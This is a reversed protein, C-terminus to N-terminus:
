SNVEVEALCLIDPGQGGNMKALVTALNKLKAALAEPERAFYGDYTSDGRKTRGDDQDDFLNEVNWFCFFYEGAKGDAPDPLPTPEPLRNGSVPGAIGPTFRPDTPTPKGDPCGVAAIVALLLLFTRM